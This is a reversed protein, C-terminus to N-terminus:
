AGLEKVYAPRSSGLQNLLKKDATWFQCHEGTIEACAIFAADYLTPLQYIQAVEWAKTRLQQNELYDIPLECFDEFYGQAEEATLLEMWIKKRLVSGVEAWIFAPAVLQVSSELAELILAEAEAQLSEPVLYQVIVNTDLCLARPM